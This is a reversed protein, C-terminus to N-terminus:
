RSAGGVMVWYYRNDAGLAVGFGVERIKPSLINHRHGASGYWWNAANTTPRFKGVNENAARFRYGQAKVRRSLDSGDSGYHSYKGMRAMDCAHAGATRSLKASKSLAPLGASLRYANIERMTQAVRPGSDAPRNCAAAAPFALLAGLLLGIPLTTKM